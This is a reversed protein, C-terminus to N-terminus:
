GTFFTVFGAADFAEGRSFLRKVLDANQGPLKELTTMNQETTILQEAAQKASLVAMRVAQHLKDHIKEAMEEGVANAPQWSLTYSVHQINQSETTTVRNVIKGTFYPNDLLYHTITGTPRDIAIREKITIGLADMQRILGDSYRELIQPNKAEPNYRSPNAVKDLVINWVKDLPAYVPSSFTFYLRDSTQTSLKPAANAM